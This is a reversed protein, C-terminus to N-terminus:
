SAVVAVVTIRTPEFQFLTVHQAAGSIDGTLGFFAFWTLIRTAHDGFVFRLNRRGEQRVEFPNLLPPCGDKRHLDCKVM